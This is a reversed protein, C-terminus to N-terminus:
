AAVGTAENIAAVDAPVAGSETCNMSEDDFEGVEHAQDNPSLLVDM